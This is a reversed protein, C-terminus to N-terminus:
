FEISTNKHILFSPSTKNESDEIGKSNISNMNIKFIMKYVRNENLSNLIKEFENKYTLMDYVGYEDNLEIDQKNNNLNEINDDLLLINKFLENLKFIIMINFKM